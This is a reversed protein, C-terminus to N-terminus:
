YLVQFPSELRQPEIVELRFATEAGAHDPLMFPKHKNTVLFVNLSLWGYGTHKKKKIAGVVHLSIPCQFQISRNM